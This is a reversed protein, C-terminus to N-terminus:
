AILGAFDRDSPARDGRCKGDDGLLWVTYVVDNRGTAHKPHLYQGRNDKYTTVRHRNTLKCRGEYRGIEGGAMEVHAGSNIHEPFNM